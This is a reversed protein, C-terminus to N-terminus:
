FKVIFIDQLYCQELGSIIWQSHCLFQRQLIWALTYFSCVFLCFFFLLWYFFWDIYSSFVDWPCDEMVIKNYFHWFFDHKTILMVAISSKTITLIIIFKRPSFLQQRRQSPVKKSQILQLFIFSPLHPCFWSM